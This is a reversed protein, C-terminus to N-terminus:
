YEASPITSHFCGHEQHIQQSIWGTVCTLALKSHGPKTCLSIGTSLAWIGTKLFPTLGFHCISNQASSFFNLCDSFDLSSAGVLLIRHLIM